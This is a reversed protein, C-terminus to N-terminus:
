EVMLKLYETGEQHTIRVMYMGAPYGTLDMSISRNTPNVRHNKRYIVGGM